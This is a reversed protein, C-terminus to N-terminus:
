GEGRLLVAKEHRHALSGAARRGLINKRARGGVFVENGAGKRAGETM